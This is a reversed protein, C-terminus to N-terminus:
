IATIQTVAVHVDTGPHFFIKVVSRGEVTQSETHEINDVVTTLLREYPGVIRDSMLQPSLGAYNWAVSVVPIDINPFVDVPTRQLVVPTMLVIVLAAVIFTYPRRLAIRVIWM